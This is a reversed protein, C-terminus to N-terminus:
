TQSGAVGALNRGRRIVRIALKVSREFLRMRLEKLDALCGEVEPWCSACVRVHRALVKFGRRPKRENCCHCQLTQQCGKRGM